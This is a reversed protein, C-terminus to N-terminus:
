PFRRQYEELSPEDGLQERLLYEGYVIDCAAQDSQGLQPAMALYEEAPVRERLSWREYQDIALVGAVQDPTLGPYEGLFARVDPRQGKRWLSWLRQEPGRRGQATEGMSRPTTDSM